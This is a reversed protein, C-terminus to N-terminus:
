GDAQRRQWREIKERLARIEEVARRREELDAMPLAAAEAERLRGLDDAANGLYAAPLEHAAYTLEKTILKVYRTRTVPDSPNLQLAQKLHDCGGLWRHPEACAPEVSLWENLTPEIVRRRLPYPALVDAGARHDIRAMLWSVFAKRESFSANEMRVIFESLVAFASARLGRELESCYHADDTWEPARSAEASIESLAQFWDARWERSRPREGTM